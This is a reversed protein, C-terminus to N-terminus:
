DNDCEASSKILGLVCCYYLVVVFSTFFVHLSSEGSCAGCCKAPDTASFNSLQDQFVHFCTQQFFNEPDCAAVAEAASPPRVWGDTGPFGVLLKFGDSTTIGAGCHNQGGVGTSADCIAHNYENDIMHVVEQRPSSANQQIAPLLNLGDFNARISADDGHYTAYRDFQLGAAEFFTPMVDVTHALGAWKAGVMRAPILDRRLSYLFAQIRVGGDWYTFKGGGAHPPPFPKPM